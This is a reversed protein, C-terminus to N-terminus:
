APRRCRGRNPTPTPQARLPRSRYQNGFSVVGDDLVEPGEGAAMPTAFPGARPGHHAARHAAATGVNRVSAVGEDQSFRFRSGCCDRGIQM